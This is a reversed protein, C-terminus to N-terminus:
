LRFRAGVLFRQGKVDYFQRNNQIGENPALPPAQDFLNIVQGYIEWPGTTYALRVDTYWAAKVSNDDVDVGEVFNIRVKGSHTYRQHIFASVPGVRYTLGTSWVVKPYASQRIDGGPPIEGAVDLKPAGPILTSRENLYTGLFRVNFDQSQGEFFDLATGNLSRGYRLELDFGSAKEKNINIFVNELDVIFQNSDRRILSCLSEAGQFCREIIEQTSLRGIADSIDLSYWDLTASFNPAWTPQYVLGVTIVDAEEPNITPNGGTTQSFDYTAGTVPDNVVRGNSRQRDFREALTGARVDRSGTARVRVQDNVVWDVGLKYAWITGSGEYDAWRVAPTLNIQQALPAGSVLPILGELFVESVDFGGNVDAFSSFLHIDPDGENAAPIGRMGPDANTPTDFLLPLGTEYSRISEDRYSVGFAASIPGAGWGEFLQGNASLEVVDQRNIFYHDIDGDAPTTVYRIGAESANGLGFMNIPVCDAFLPNFQSAYCIIRGTAPDRVADVAAYLTQIRHYGYHANRQKNRGYQYYGDVRWGDFFGDSDIDITFGATYSETDNIVDLRANTLFDRTNRTFSFSQLGEEDMIQAVEDPLFANERYITMGWPARNNSSAGNMGVKGHGLIGQVYFNVNDTADFDLYGFFNRSTVDNTLDPGATSPNRPDCGSGGGTGQGGSLSSLSQFVDGSSITSNVFPSVSGDPNFELRHLASGAPGTILGGCTMRTDVLNKARITRPGTGNAVFEPNRITGWGQYWSRDFKDHIGQEGSFEGSLILHSREGLSTGFTAELKGNQNDGYRSIGAQANVRLGTFETDLIINTVGAVADTGYVASAGGTVVEVSQIAATPFNAINVTGIKSGAVVRRGNLLTLTRNPGLGRLNVNTGQAAAVNSGFDSSANVNNFFAPVNDLADILSAPGLQSLDDGSLVTVPTPTTLGSQIRIRSGTVMIEEVVAAGDPGAQGSAVGSFCAALLASGLTVRRFQQRVQRRLINSSM